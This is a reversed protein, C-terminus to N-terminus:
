KKTDRRIGLFNSFFGGTKPLELVKDTEWRGTARQGLWQDFQARTQRIFAETEQLDDRGLLDRLRTLLDILEDIRIQAGVPNQKWLAFVDSPEMQRLPHLLAAFTPNVVRELDYRGDSGMLAAFLTLSLLIPMQETFEILADCEEPTTFRPHMGLIEAMDAALKVASEPCTPDPAILMDGGRFQNADAAEVQQRTDFLFTNNVLPHIGIVYSQLGGESNRPFYKAGLEIIKTKNLSMDLVVTGPKLAPGFYEYLDPILAAPLSVFVVHADRVASRANGESADIARFNQATTRNQKNADQGVIKFQLRSDRQEMHDKLALGISASYRDLGIIAVNVQTKSM